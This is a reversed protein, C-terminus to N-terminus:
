MGRCEDVNQALFTSEPNIHHLHFTSARYIRHRHGERGDFGGGHAGSRGYCVVTLSWYLGPLARGVWCRWARSKIWPGNWLCRGLRGASFTCPSRCPGQSGDPFHLPLLEGEAVGGRGPSSGPGMGSVGGWGGQASPARVGAHVRVKTLSLSHSPRVWGLVEVGRVQDPVWAPATGNLARRKPHAAKPMAGRRRPSILSFPSPWGLGPRSQAADGICDASALTKCAHRLRPPPVDRRTQLM